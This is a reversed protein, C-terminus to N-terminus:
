RGAEEIYTARIVGPIDALAQRAPGSKAPNGSRAAKRAGRRAVHLKDVFEAAEDHLDDGTLPNVPSTDM